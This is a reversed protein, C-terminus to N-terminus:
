VFGLRQRDFNALNPLMANIDSHNVGMWEAITAAYQDVSTTPILRGKVSADDAGGLIYSPLKGYVDGGNVSGGMIIQHNGWAHDSGDNAPQLTRGFDSMTFSLVQSDVSLEETARYFASMAEDLEALLATHRQLQSTHTDFSGFSVYFIQRNLRLLWRAQLMRAVERLQRGINTDPFTTSLAPMSEVVEEYISIEDMMRSAGNSSAAVLSLDRDVKLLKKIAQLRRHDFDSQRFGKLGSLNQPNVSAARTMSGTCYSNIGALSVTAPYLAANNLGQLSDAMLGGWGFGVRNIIQTNPSQWQNQQANHAYLSDPINISKNKYQRPTTPMHLTGVNSLVALKYRSFLSALKPMNPHFAFSERTRTTQVPILSNRALALEGRANAYEAYRADDNPIFMNIGDNGGELNICVVARYASSMGAHSPQM